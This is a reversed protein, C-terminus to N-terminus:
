AKWQPKESVPMKPTWAAVPPSFRGSSIGTMMSSSRLDDIHDLLLLDVAGARLDARLKQHALFARGGAGALDGALHHEVAPRDGVLFQHLPKDPMVM